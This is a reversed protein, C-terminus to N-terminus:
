RQLVVKRTMIGQETELRMIYVGNSLAPGSASRGDWSITNLGEHAFTKIFSVERGNLDTISLYMDQANILVIRCFTENRFPNPQVEFSQEDNAENTATSQLTFPVPDAISGQHNNASFNMKQELMQVEGTAADFLKFHLQEGSVNAYSTLFFMYTDLADIYIAEAVGRIEEGVFAGLEMNATTANFDDYQFVGILTMSNEYQTADVTWFTPMTREGRLVAPDDNIISQPPYTLTGTQATRLM